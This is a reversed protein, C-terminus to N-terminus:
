LKIINVEERKVWALLYDFDRTVYQKKFEIRVFVLEQDDIKRESIFEVKEIEASSYGEELIQNSVSFLHLSDTKMEMKM